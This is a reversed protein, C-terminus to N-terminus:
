APCIANRQKRSAEFHLSHWYTSITIKWECGWVATFVSSWSDWILPQSSDYNGLNLLQCCIWVCWFHEISSSRGSSDNLSVITNLLLKFLIVVVVPKHFPSFWRATKFRQNIRPYCGYKQTGATPNSTSRRYRWKKILVYFMQSVVFSVAINRAGQLAYKSSEM